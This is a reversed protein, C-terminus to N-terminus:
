ANAPSSAEWEHGPSVSNFHFYTRLCCLSSLVSFDTLDAWVSSVYRAHIFYELGEGSTKLGVPEGPSTIERQGVQPPAELILSMSSWSETPSCHSVLNISSPPIEREEPKM